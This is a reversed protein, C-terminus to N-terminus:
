VTTFVGNFCCYANSVTAQARGEVLGSTNIRVRGYGSPTGTDLNTFIAPLITETKPRYGSPLTGINQWNANWATQLRAVYANNILVMNLYALGAFGSKDAKIGADWTISPLTTSEFSTLDIKAQTIAGDAVKITSVAGDALKATNIAGNSISATSIMANNIAEINAVIQDLEDATLVDLPVFDMNPYPLTIIAM